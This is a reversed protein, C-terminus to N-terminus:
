SNWPSEFQQGRPSNYHSWTASQTLYRDSISRELGASTWLRQDGKLYRHWTTLPVAAWSWVPQDPHTLSSKSTDTEIIAWTAWPVHIHCAKSLCKTGAQMLHCAHLDKHILKPKCRGSLQHWNVIMRACQVHWHCSWTCALSLMVSSMCTHSIGVAASTVLSDNHTHVSHYQANIFFHQNM